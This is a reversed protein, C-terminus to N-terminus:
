EDGEETEETDELGDIDKTNLIFKEDIDAFYFMDRNGM